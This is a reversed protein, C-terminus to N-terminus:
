GYEFVFSSLHVVLLYTVNDNSNTKSSCSCCVAKLLPQQPICVHLHVM